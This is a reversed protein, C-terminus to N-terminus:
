YCSASFFNHCANIIKLVIDVFSKQERDEQTACPTPPPPPFKSPLILRLALTIANIYM